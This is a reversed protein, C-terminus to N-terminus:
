AKLLDEAVAQSLIAQNVGDKLTGNFLRNLGANMRGNVSRIISVPASQTDQDAPFTPKQDELAESGHSSSLQRHIATRALSPEAGSNSSLYTPANSVMEKLEKLMM